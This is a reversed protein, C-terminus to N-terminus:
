LRIVRTSNTQDPIKICTRDALTWHSFFMAVTIVLGTLGNEQLFIQGIGTFTEKIPTQM